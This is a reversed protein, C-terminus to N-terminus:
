EIQTNLISIYGKAEALTKFSKGRVQYKGDIESIESESIPEIEVPEEPIVPAKWTKKFVGSTAGIIIGIVVGFILIGITIFTDHKTEVPPILYHMVYYGLALGLLAIILVRLVVPVKEAFKLVSYIFPDRMMNM